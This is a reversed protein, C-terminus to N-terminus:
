NLLTIVSTYEPERMSGAETFSGEFEESSAPKRPVTGVKGGWREIFRGSAVLHDGQMKQSLIAINMPSATV